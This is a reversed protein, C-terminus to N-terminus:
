WSLRSDPVFITMQSLTSWGLSNILNAPEKGLVLLVQINIVDRLATNELINALSVPHICRGLREVESDTAKSFAVM